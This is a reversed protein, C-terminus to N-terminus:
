KGQVITNKDPQGIDLQKDAVALAPAVILLLGVINKM